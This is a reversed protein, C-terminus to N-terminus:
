DLPVHSCTSYVAHAHLMDWARGRHLAWAVASAVLAKAERWSAAVPPEVCLHAAELADLVVDACAAEDVVANPEAARLVDDLAARVEPSKSSIGRTAARLWANAEEDQDVPLHGHRHGCRSRAYPDPADRGGWHLHCLLARCGGNDPSCAAYAEGRCRTGDLFVHECADVYGGGSASWTVDGAVFADHSYRPDPHMRRLLFVHQTPVPPAAQEPASEADEECLEDVDYVPDEDEVDSLFEVPLPLETVDSPELVDHPNTGKGEVWAGLYLDAGVLDVVVPLEKV